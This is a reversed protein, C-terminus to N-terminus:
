NDEGNDGYVDMFQGMGELEKDIRKNDKNGELKNVSDMVAKLREKQNKSKQITDINKLLEKDEVKSGCGVLLGMMVLGLVIKKSNKM